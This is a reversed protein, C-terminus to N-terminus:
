PRVDAECIGWSWASPPWATLLADVVPPGFGRAYAADHWSPHLCSPPLAKRESTIVALVREPFGNVPGKEVWPQSPAPSALRAQGPELLVPQEGPRPLMRLVDGSSGLNFLHLYGRQQSHVVVHLEHGVRLASVAQVRDERFAPPLNPEDAATSPVPSENAPAHPPASVSPASASPASPPQAASQPVPNLIGRLGGPGEAIRAVLRVKVAPAQAAALRELVRRIVAQKEEASAVSM